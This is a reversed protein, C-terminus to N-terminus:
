PKDLSLKFENVLKDAINENNVQYSGEEIRAKLDAVKQSNVEPEQSVQESLANLQRATDTLEVSDSKATQATDTSQNSSTSKEADNQRVNSANTRNTM